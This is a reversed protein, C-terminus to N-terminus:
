LSHFCFPHLVCLALYLFQLQAGIENVILPSHCFAHFILGKEIHLWRRSGFISVFKIQYETSCCFSAVHTHVNWDIKWEKSCKLLFNLNDVEILRCRMCWLYAWINRKLTLLRPWIEICYLHFLVLTVEGFQNPLHFFFSFQRALTYLLQWCVYIALLCSFYVCFALTERGTWIIIWCEDAYM